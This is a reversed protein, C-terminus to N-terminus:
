GSQGMAGNLAMGGSAARHKKQIARHGTPPCSLDSILQPFM